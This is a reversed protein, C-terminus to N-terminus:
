RWGSGHIHSQLKLSPLGVSHSPLGVSHSPLGASISAIPRCPASHYPLGVSHSPLGVSHSSLGVSHSPMGTSISAIPHCMSKRAGSFDGFLNEDKSAHHHKETLYQSHFKNQIAIRGKKYVEGCWAM